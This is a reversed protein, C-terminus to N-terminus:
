GNRKRTRIWHGGKKAPSIIANGNDNWRLNWSKAAIGLFSKGTEEGLTWRECTLALWISRRLKDWRGTIERWHNTWSLWLTELPSMQRQNGGNRGKIFFLSINRGSAAGFNTSGIRLKLGTTGDRIRTLQRRTSSRNRRRTLPTRLSSIIQLLRGWTERILQSRM